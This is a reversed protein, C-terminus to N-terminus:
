RFFVQLFILLTFQQYLQSFFNSVRNVGQRTPYATYIYLTSSRPRAQGVCQILPTPHNDYGTIGVYRKYYIVFRLTGSHACIYSILLCMIESSAKIKFLSLIFRSREDETDGCHRLIHLGNFLARNYYMVNM